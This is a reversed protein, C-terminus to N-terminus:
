CVCYVMVLWFISLCLTLVITRFLLPNLISLIHHIHSFVLLPQNIGFHQPSPNSHPSSPLSTRMANPSYSMKRKFLVRFPLSRTKFGSRSLFLRQLLQSANLPILFLCPLHKSVKSKMAILRLSVLHKRVRIQGAIVRRSFHLAVDWSQAAALRM